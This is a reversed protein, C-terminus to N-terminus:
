FRGHALGYVIWALAMAAMVLLALGGVRDAITARRTRYREIMHGGPSDPDYGRPFKGQIAKWREPWFCMLAGQAGFALLALLIVAAVVVSKAGM